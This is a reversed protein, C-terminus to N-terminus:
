GKNYNSTKNCIHSVTSYDLNFADGLQKLSVNTNKRLEQIIHRKIKQFEKWTIFVGNEKNYFAHKKIDEFFLSLEEEGEYYHNPNVCKKNGCLRHLSQIPDFDSNYMAYVVRHVNYMHQKIGIFPRGQSDETGIWNWCGNKKDEKEIYLFLRERITLKNHGPIKGGKIGSQEDFKILNEPLRVCKKRM